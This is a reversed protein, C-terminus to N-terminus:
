PSVEAHGQAMEKVNLLDTISVMGLCTWDDAMCQSKVVPVQRYSNTVMKTVCEQVTSQPTVVHLHENTTMIEGVSINRSDKDELVVKYLYDRETIIGGMTGREDVVVLRGQKVQAMKEVAQRVTASPLITDVKTEVFSHVPQSVVKRVEEAYIGHSTAAIFNNLHKLIDRVSFVGLVEQLTIKTKEINENSVVPLHRFHEQSLVALCEDLTAADGVCVLDPTMIERVSTTKSQRGKTVIKTLYDRETFIGEVYGKSTVLVSGAKKRRMEQLASFVTADADVHYLDHGKTEVIQSADIMTSLPYFYSVQNVKPEIHILPGFCARSVHLLRRGLVLPQRALM